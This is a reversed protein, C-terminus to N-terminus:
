VNLGIVSHLAHLGVAVVVYGSGVVQHKLLEYLVSAAAGGVHRTARKIAGLGLRVLSGFRVTLVLVEHHVMVLFVSFSRIASRLVDALEGVQLDSYRSAFLFDFHAALVRRCSRLLRSALGDGFFLTATLKPLTGCYYNEVSLFFQRESLVLEARFLQLRGLWLLAM